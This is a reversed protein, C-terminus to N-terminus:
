YTAFAKETKVARRATISSLHIYICKLNNYLLTKMIIITMMLFHSLHNYVFEMITLTILIRINNFIFINTYRYM